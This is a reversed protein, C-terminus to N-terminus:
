ILHHQTVRIRMNYSKTNIHNGHNTETQEWTDIDQFSAKCTNISM